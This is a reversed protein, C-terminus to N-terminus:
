KIEERLKILFLNVETKLNLLGETEKDDNTVDLRKQYYLAEETYGLQEIKQICLTIEAVVLSKHEFAVQASVIEERIFAMEEDLRAAADAAKTLRQRIEVPVYKDYKYNLSHEVTAWFNMALTRIQIEALIEKYGYVTQIPYKIIIHYSRYGSEKPSKIYDKVYVIQMDQREEIYKVLLYIDEVMQCMIRIGAIDEIKDEIEEVEIDMRKVKELISTVKKVRGTVFEIPSYQGNARLEKRINKFKVKLEEVACEYPLLLKKWDILEGM